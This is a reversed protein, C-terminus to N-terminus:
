ILEELVVAGAAKRKKESRVEDKASELRAEVLRGQVTEERLIFGDSEWIDERVQLKNFTQLEGRFTDAPLVKILGLTGATEFYGDTNRRINKCKMAKSCSADFRSRSIRGQREAATGNVLVDKFITRFILDMKADIDKPIGKAGM